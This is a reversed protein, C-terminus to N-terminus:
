YPERGWKLLEWVPQYEDPIAKGTLPSVTRRFGTPTANGAEAFTVLWVKFPSALAICDLVDEASVNKLSISIEPDDVETLQSSGIGGRIPKPPTVVATVLQGLRRSALEAVQNQIDFQPIRLRLFNERGSVMGRPQVHVVGNRVQLEYGPQTHVIDQVVGQVTATKWSLRVPKMASPTRVWEIGMPIKFRDAVKILADVFSSATVDYSQVRVQLTARLERTEKSSSGPLHTWSGQSMLLVFLITTVV